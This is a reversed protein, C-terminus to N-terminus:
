RACNSLRNRVLDKGLSQFFEKGTKEAAQLCQELYRCLVPHAGIEVFLTVGDAILTNAAASFEVPHRINQWWYKADLTNGALETGTVTSIFRLKKSASPKLKALGKLVREEIPDMYPSHFAYDLDLLRVFINEALLQTELEKLLSEDGSITVSSPSNIGAIVVDDAMKLAVLKEQMQAASLGVAAMKGQGQTQAQAFSREYIVHVAQKLSLAGSVWAAAIEGVSHGFAATANLGFSQLMRTLAVQFAFLVPQAVETLHLKQNDKSAFLEEEISFDAYNQWHKDIEKVTNRFIKNEKFLICGMGLWQCGNGSYVFALQSHTTVADSTVIGDATEGQAFLRLNKVISAKDDAFIAVRQELLQRHTLASWAIDYYHAVDAKSILDAYKMALDALATDKRASLFLPPISKTHYVTNASERPYEELIVHANAGGFGFSNVGMLLSKASDPLPLFKDVVKLNWDQFDIHPNPLKYHLNQPIARNKLCLITKLLGAMGSAVELHGLNTKASGILLPNGQDRQSGLALSLGKAELPDGVATGTGHAEVYAIENINVDAKNYIEQLLQAQAQSSPVTMSSTKGDCNIGSALIVAYIKDGDAEAQELPKLIVIGAGESRVYGDGSADFAKCRGNPSLMSAKSFGIFGLPHLLMNVGGAIAMSAEGNRISNCAQHLAFLSSSCATDVSMSPGHLDFIYSIRNSAISATAGTMFYTDVGAIDDTKHQSYENSGIGIFVGCNSGAFKQPHLGGDEFAEWTLELLLRQQPDMQEAERRSINFFAAEFEDVHPLVGAAWTYSRGAVKRKPHGYIAKSWRSDPIETVADAGNKLIQWYDELNEVGGPFRCAVGVIAIKKYNSM